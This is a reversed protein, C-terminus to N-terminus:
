ITTHVPLLLTFKQAINVKEHCRGEGESGREGGYTFVDVVHLLQM